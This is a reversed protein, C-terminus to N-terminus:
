VHESSSCSLPLDKSMSPPSQRVGHMEGHLNMTVNDFHGPSRERGPVNKAGIVQTHSQDILQDRVGLAFNRNRESQKSYGLTEDPEQDEKTIAKVVEAVMDNAM